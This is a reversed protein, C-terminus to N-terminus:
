DEYRKDRQQGKASRNYRAYKAKRKEEDATM